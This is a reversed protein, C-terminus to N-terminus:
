IYEFQSHSLLPSLGEMKSIFALYSDLFLAQLAQFFHFLWIIVVYDWLNNCNNFIANLQILKM